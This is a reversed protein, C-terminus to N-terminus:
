AAQDLGEGDAPPESDAASGEGLGYEALAAQYGSQYAEDQAQEKARQQRMEEEYAARSAWAEADYWYSDGDADTM